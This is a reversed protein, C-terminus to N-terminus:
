KWEYENIVMKDDLEGCYRSEPNYGNQAVRTMIENVSIAKQKRNQDVSKMNVANRKRNLNNMQTQEKPTIEEYYTQRCYEDNDCNYQFVTEELKGCDIHESIPQNSM